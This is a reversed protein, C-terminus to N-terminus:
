SEPSACGTSTRPNASDDEFRRRGGTSLWRTCCGVARLAPISASRPRPALLRIRPRLTLNPPLLRQGALLPVAHCDKPVDHLSFHANPLRRFSLCPVVALGPIRQSRGNVFRPLEQVLM